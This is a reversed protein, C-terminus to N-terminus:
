GREQDGNMVMGFSLVSDLKQPSSYDRGVVAVDLVHCRSVWAVTQRGSRDVGVSVERRRTVAASNLMASPELVVPM